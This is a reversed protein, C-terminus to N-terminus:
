FGLLALISNARYMDDFRIYIGNSYIFYALFCLVAMSSILRYSREEFTEKLMRPLCCITGLEFYQAMRAFMNAGSQTGLLMFAFSIISMHVLVHDSISSNRFVWRQFLFSIVPVVAYVAVRLFSVGDDYFVDEEYMKKGAEEAQDMFASISEEFNLMVFVLGVVFLYTFLKWPKQTFFPLVAYALAYTHVMMALFVVLYYRVWQKKELYPFALTLIAMAWVQKLAGLSFAFTGLAFYLFVTFTFNESYRKFFLLYCIQTFASPIFIMWQYNDTLSRLTSRFLHFLPYAMVNFNELNGVYAALGKDNRFGSIYNWTDNYERRLGAFLVLVIALVIYATDNMVSYVQGSRKVANTYKESYYALIVCVMMLSAIKIM